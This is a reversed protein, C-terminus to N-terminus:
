SLRYFGFATQAHPSKYIRPAFPLNRLGRRAHWSTRLCVSWAQRHPLPPLVTRWRRWHPDDQAPRGHALITVGSRSSQPLRYVEHLRRQCSTQHADFIASQRLFPMWLLTASTAQRALSEPITLPTDLPLQRLRRRSPYPLVPASRWPILGQYPLRPLHRPVPASEDTFLRTSHNNKRGERRRTRERSWSLGRM